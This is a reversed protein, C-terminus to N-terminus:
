FALIGQQYCKGQLPPTTINIESKLRDKSNSESEKLEIQRSELEINEQSFNSNNM